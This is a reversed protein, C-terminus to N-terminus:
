WGVAIPPQCAEHSRLWAVADALADDIAQPAYGLERRAKGTDLPVSRLAVRVAEASVPPRRRSVHTAFWEAAMGIALAAPGPMARVHASRGCLAGVRRALERVSVNEGGLIYRAGSRGREAALVIGRAVDRVDVLNLSADLVLPPPRHVFMSLMATPETFNHDGPGIPITPSAIVVRMGRAAADRAAREALFKSRTYPGPMDDLRDPIDGGDRTPPFLIAETSCHVFNAVHMDRAAALMVETGRHNVRDFDDLDQTWFHPIAALHFVTDVGDLARVVDHPDLITGEVFESATGIGAESRPPQLDLVRVFDRRRRLAAVLQRGIFGSGGTVLVRRLGQAARVEPTRAITEM